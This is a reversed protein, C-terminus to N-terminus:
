APSHGILASNNCPKFDSVSAEKSAKKDNSVTLQQLIDKIIGEIDSVRGFLERKVRSQDPM